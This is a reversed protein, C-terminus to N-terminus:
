TFLLDSFSKANQNKPKISLLDITEEIRVTDDNAHDKLIDYLVGKLYKVRPYPHSQERDESHEPGDVWCPAIQFNEKTVFGEKAGDQGSWKELQARYTNLESEQPLPSPLICLYLAVEKLSIFGTMGPDLNKIIKEFNSRKYAKWNTPAGNKDNFKKSNETRSILMTIFANNDLKDEESSIILENILTELQEITFRESRIEERAPLIAPPPDLFNLIKQDLFFDMYKIRLEYQLKEQVEIANKIVKEM